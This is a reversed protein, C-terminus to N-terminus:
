LKHHSLNILHCFLREVGKISLSECAGCIKLGIRRAKPDDYRLNQM